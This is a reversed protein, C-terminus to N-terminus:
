KQQRVGLHGVARLTEVAGDRDTATGSEVWPGYQVSLVKM